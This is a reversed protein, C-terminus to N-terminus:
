KLSAGYKAGEAAVFKFKEFEAQGATYLVETLLRYSTKSDAVVLAMGEFPRNTRASLMKLHQVREKLADLLPNILLGDAGDRKLSEDVTGDRLDAVKNDQVMIARKSIAIVIADELGQKDESTRPLMLEDSQRIQVPDSGFSKMLFCLIITFADMLSNILLKDREVKRRRRKEKKAKQKEAWIADIDASNIGQAM